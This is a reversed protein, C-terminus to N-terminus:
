DDDEEEDEQLINALHSRDLADQLMPILKAMTRAVDTLQDKGLVAQLRKQGLHRNMRNYLNFVGETLYRASPNVFRKRVPSTPAQGNGASKDAVVSARAKLIRAQEKAEAKQRALSTTKLDHIARIAAGLAEESPRHKVWARALIIAVELPLEAEHLSAAANQGLAVAGNWGAEQTCTRVFLRHHAIEAIIKRNIVCDNAIKTIWEPAYDKQALMQEAVTRMDQDTSRNGHRRNITMEVRLLQYPDTPLLNYAKIPTLGTILFAGLRHRIDVGLQESMLVLPYPLNVEGAVAADLLDAVVNPLIPGESRVQLDMTKALNLDKAPDLTVVEWACGYHNKLDAEVQPSPGLRINKRAIERENANRRRDKPVLFMEYYEALQAEISKSM